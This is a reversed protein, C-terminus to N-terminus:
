GGVLSLPGSGAGGDRYKGEADTATSSPKEYSEPMPMLTIAARKLPEGTVASVVRGELRAPNKPAEAAAGGQATQAQVVAALLLTISLFLRNM